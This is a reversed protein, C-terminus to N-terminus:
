KSWFFSCVSHLKFHRLLTDQNLHSISLEYDSIKKKSEPSVTFRVDLSTNDRPKKLGSQFPYLQPTGKQEHTQPPAFLNM